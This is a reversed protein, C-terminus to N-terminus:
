SPPSKTDNSLGFLRHDQWKGNIQLYFKAYGEEEFGLKKLLNISRDNHPLSAANLRCLKLTNFAYAMVLKASENMYGQGQYDEALWYGLTAHRAAGLRIDNLNIGGIIKDGAKHHILFFAGRGANWEKKQRELRRIFFQKTLSDDAWTPEFPTLYDKSEARIQSWSKYDNLCPAKLIVRFGQLVPTPKEKSPSKRLWVPNFMTM